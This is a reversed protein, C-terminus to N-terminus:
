DDEGGEHEVVPAPTRAPAQPRATQPTPAPAAQAVVPAPDAVSTAPTILGFNLAIAAVAAAIVGTLSVSLALAKPRDM